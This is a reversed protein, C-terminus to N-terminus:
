GLSLSRHRAPADRIDKGIYRSVEAVGGTTAELRMDRTTEELTLVIGMAAKERQVTGKLDRLQASNVHGSKVSVLVSELRRDPGTFTIRGDIGRDPGKREVVGTPQAGILNLAWWQFQSRGEPSQALQRAGEVETPQGVVEVEALGFTDKLRARMVATALYTIDIGLWQRGLKPRCNSRHRM